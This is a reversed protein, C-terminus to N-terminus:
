KESTKALKKCNLYFVWLTFLPLSSAMISAKRMPITNNMRAATKPFNTKMMKRMAATKRAM